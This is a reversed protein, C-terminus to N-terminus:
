SAQGRKRPNSGFETERKYDEGNLAYHALSRVRAPLSPSLIAESFQSILTSVIKAGGPSTNRESSALAHSREAGWSARKGSQSSISLRRKITSLGHRASAAYIFRLRPSTRILTSFGGLSCCCIERNSVRLMRLVTIMGPMHSPIMSLFQISEGLHTKRPFAPARFAM